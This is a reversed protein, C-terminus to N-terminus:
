RKTDEGINEYQRISDYGVYGVAGGIFPFLPEQRLIKIETTTKKVSGFTKRIINERDNGKKIISTDGFGILEM